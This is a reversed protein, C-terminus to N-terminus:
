DDEVEKYCAHCCETVCCLALGEVFWEITDFIVDLHEVAVLTM